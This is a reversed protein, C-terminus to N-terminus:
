SHRGYIFDYIFLLSEKIEEVSSGIERTEPCGDGEYRIVVIDGDNFCELIARREGSAFSIGVGEEASPVLQSPPFDMEHLLYLAELSNRIAMANPAASGYGNWDDPLNRMEDLQQRFDSIWSVAGRAAGIGEFHPAYAIGISSSQSASTNPHIITETKGALDTLNTCIKEKAVDLLPTTRSLSINVLDISDAYAVGNM